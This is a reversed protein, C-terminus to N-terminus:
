SGEAHLFYQHGLLLDYQLLRYEEILAHGETPLSDRNWMPGDVERVYRSLIPFMSRVTDIAALFGAPRIEMKDLLYPPLANTSLEINERPLVYNTWVLLPVRRIARAQDTKPLGSMKEYLPRLVEGSLPPLHDGVIVIMTPDPQRRFYEILRGIARDADRLVNIYGKLEGAADGSLPDLVDLDSNGYAGGSYPSHTGSPFAFIFFPSATRSARIVAEAVVKDSPWWGLAARENGTDEHLWVAEDFGLLDYVQERNFWSKPDPQVATTRYGIDKLARPLSPIPRKVFQRYPLSREPLFSQSMGTLVEFETNVSGGFAGPVIGYGSIGTRQIARINPIPDSTYRWGLDEPDMFSEVMYVVLNVRGRRSSEIPDTNMGRYRRSVAAITEASYNRPARIFSSPIEALFTLLIGNERTFEKTLHLEPAGIRRYLSEKSSQFGPPYFFYIAPVALLVVVSVVAITCRFVVPTRYASSGRLVLLLVAWSLIGCITAVLVKTGFFSRFQPLFEPLSILDLPSVAARMYKLKVLTAICMLVYFPTVFLLASAVRSTIAFALLYASFLILINTAWANKLMIDQQLESGPIVGFEMALDSFSVLFAASALLIAVPPLPSLLRVTGAFQFLARTERPLLLACWFGVFAPPSLYRLYFFKEWVTTSLLLMLGHTATVALLLCIGLMRLLKRSSRRDEIPVIRYVMGLGGYLCVWSISVVVDGLIHFSGGPLAGVHTAWVVSGLLIVLLVFTEQASWVAFKLFNVKERLPLQFYNKNTM